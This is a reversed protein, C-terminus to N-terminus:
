KFACITTQALNWRYLNKSNTIVPLMPKLRMTEPFPWINEPSRSPPLTGTFSISAEGPQINIRVPTAAIVFGVGLILLAFIALLSNRRVKNRPKAQVLRPTALPEPERQSRPDPMEEGLDAIEPPPAPAPPPTRVAIDIEFVLMGQEEGISILAGGIGVQDGPALWASGDILIDNHTISYSNSEPQIYDSAAMSKLDPTM